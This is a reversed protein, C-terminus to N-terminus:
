IERSHTSCRSESVNRKRACSRSELGHSPLSKYKGATRLAARKQSTASERAPTHLFSIISVGLVTSLSLRLRCVSRTNQYVSQPRPSDAFLPRRQRAPLFLNRRRRVESLPEPMLRLTKGRKRLEVAFFQIRIRRSFPKKGLYPIEQFLSIYSQNVRCFIRSAIMHKDQLIPYFLPQFPLIILRLNRTVPYPERQM